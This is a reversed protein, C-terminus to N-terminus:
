LKCITVIGNKRGPVAGKILVINEQERLDVIELNKVTVRTAGMHGPMKKGKLVKSPSASMGSSGVARHFKSGHTMPGRSFGWRKINGQFGKGKSVGVVQVKEGPEFIEATIQDGVEYKDAEAIRFEKLIAYAKGNLKKFHGQLPKTLKAPAIEKFSL